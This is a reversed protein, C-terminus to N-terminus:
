AFDARRRAPLRRFDRNRRVGWRSRRRLANERGNNSRKMAARPEGYCALAPTSHRTPRKERMKVIGEMEALLVLVTQQISLMSNHEDEEGAGQVQFEPRM